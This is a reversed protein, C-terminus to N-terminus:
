AVIFRGNVRDFSFSGFTFHSTISRGKGAHVFHHTESKFRLSRLPIRLPSYPNLEAVKAFVEAAEATLTKM